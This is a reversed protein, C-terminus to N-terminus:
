LDAVYRLADELMEGSTRLGLGEALSISAINAPDIFAQVQSAGSAWALGARCAEAMVGQGWTDPHLHYALEPCTGLHNFGMAGVFIGDPETLLAWRFGLGTGARWVFFEIIRDSDAPSAAPLGIPLGEADVAPGAYRWVEELSRLAFMSASHAMTLPEMRLRATWLTPIVLAVM